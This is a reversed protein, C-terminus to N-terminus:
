VNRQVGEAASSTYATSGQVVQVGDVLRLEDIVAFGGLKEPWGAPVESKEQGGRVDLLNQLEGSSEVRWRRGVSSASSSSPPSGRDMQPVRFVKNGELKSGGHRALRERGPYLARIAKSERASCLAVPSLGFGVTAIRDPGAGVSVVSPTSSHTMSAASEKRCAVGRRATSNSIEM